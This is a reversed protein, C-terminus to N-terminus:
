TESRKKGSLAISRISSAAARTRMRRWEVGGETRSAVFPRSASRRSFSWAIPLWCYSYAASSRSRSTLRCDFSSSSSCSTCDSRASSSSITLSSSMRSTTEMHVPMGSVRIAESSVARSSSISCNRSSRTIPWLSAIPATAFATRRARAPSFFGFRGIPTKM